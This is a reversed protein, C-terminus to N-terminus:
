VISIKQMKEKGDSNFSTRRSSARSHNHPSPVQMMTIPPSPIILTHGCPCASCHPTSTKVIPSNLSIGSKISHTGSHGCPINNSIESPSFHSGDHHRSNRRHVNTDGITGNPLASSYPPAKTFHKCTHFTPEILLKEKSSPLPPSKLPSYLNIEDEDDGHVVDLPDHVRKRKRKNERYIIYVIICALMVLTLLVGLGIHLYNSSVNEKCNTAEDSNDTLIHGDKIYTGCNPFGNCELEQPICHHSYPCLFEPCQDHAGLPLLKTWVIKFGNGGHANENTVMSITVSTKKSVYAPVVSAFGCISSVSRLSDAEKIRVVANKCGKTTGEVSLNLFQLLIGQAPENVSITRECNLSKPYSNPYNPSLLVGGFETVNGEDSICQEHPRPFLKLRPLFQFKLQFGTSAARDNSRFALLLHKASPSPILPGPIYDGCISHTKRYEEIQILPFDNFAHETWKQQNSNAFKQLLRGEHTIENLLEIVELYDEKCSAFDKHFHSNGTLTEEKTQFSTFSLLISQEPEFKFLYLCNSNPPYTDAYFPSNTWGVQGDRYDSGKYTFWCMKPAAM